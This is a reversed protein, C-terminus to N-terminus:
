QDNRALECLKALGALLTVQQVAADLNHCSFRVLRTGLTDGYLQDPYISVDCADGPCTLSFRGDPFIVARCEKSNKKIKSWGIKNWAQRMVEGVAPLYASSFMGEDRVDGGQKKLWAGLDPSICGSMSHGHQGTKCITDIQIFQHCNPTQSEEAFFMHNFVQLLFWVTLSIYNANTNERLEFRFHVEGDSINMHGCKDYGFTYNGFIDKHLPTFEMSTGFYEEDVKKFRETIFDLKTQFVELHRESMSFVILPNVEKSGQSPVFFLDYIHRYDM